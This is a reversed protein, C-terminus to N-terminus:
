GSAQGNRARWFFVAYIRVALWMALRRWRPLGARRLLLLFLADGVMREAENTAHECHWDHVLSALRFERRLPHGMVPRCARPISAGDWSYGEPIAILLGCGNVQLSVLYPVVFVLREGILCVPLDEGRTDIV